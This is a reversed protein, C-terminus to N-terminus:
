RKELLAKWGNFLVQSGAFIIAVVRALGELFYMPDALSLDVWGWEGAIFTAPIAVLISVIIALWYASAGSVKLRKKLLDILWSTIAIIATGGIFEM